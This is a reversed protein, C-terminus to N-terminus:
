FWKRSFLNSLQKPSITLVFRIKNKYPTNDFESGISTHIPLFIELYDPLINLRIGSGYLFHPNSDHNKLFALDIYTEVWKWISMTINTTLLYDNATNPFLKSKFGGEAMVIQQSFFGTDESRGFYNYRFLYDQPRNLNFDFFNTARQNHHLFKGAYVRGTFQRGSAFLKRYDFTLELKSFKKSVQFSNDFAIFKLAGKNSFSYMLNFLEYNPNTITDPPSDRNVNYYYFGLFHRENSRFDSTRFLFNISPTIVQYRSEENYHYSSGYFNLFTVYNGKNYNNFRYSMKVKGVLDKQISSYEPMIDFVFKQVLLGKDYFRSGISLGDYLNYNFVPNYYIQNRKPSEYDKLFNFQVPKLNLFNKVSRWNNNKNSEPLRIEPNIVVFDPQLNKLTIHSVTGMDEIWQQSLISDNKVQSLIFPIKNNSYKALNVEISDKSKKLSKIKIDIPIREKLYFNEFWDINKTSHKKLLDMLSLKSDSQNLFEKLANQISDKGIYNEIYRLGVGVHYPSGIKENFKILEDKPLFDSQQLNAREMFEYYMWFSENFKIEALTYAKMIKLRGIRGLYKEQPYYTEIYKIMLYTQLGGIVWHDKRLDVPLNNSLYFHLYAKLFSIEEWFIDKFPSLFKLFVNIGFFPNKNYILEPILFKNLGKFEFTNIIFSDIRRVRSLYIEEKNSKKFINTFLIRGEKTPISQYKKNKTLFLLVERNQIGSFYHITDEKKERQLNSEVFFDKPVSLKLRYDAAQISFDDLNLHSYNRWQNNYIPSLAIHWYRLLVDGEPNYGYGTFKADPIVVEYKLEIRILNEEKITQNPIVWIIDPQNELRSWDVEKGNLEFSTISTQGLKSKNSLYFSRDYEEVFRQALPSKISSYANSWDTFYLTDLIESSINKFSIIQSVNLKKKSADVAADIDYYIENQGFSSNTGM